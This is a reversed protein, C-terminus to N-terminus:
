GRFARSAGPTERGNESAPAAGTEGGPAFSLGKAAEAKRAKYEEASIGGRPAPPPLVNRPTGAAVESMNVAIAASSRAQGLDAQAGGGPLLTNSQNSATPEQGFAVISFGALAVSLLIPIRMVSKM